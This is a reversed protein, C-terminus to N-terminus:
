KTDKSSLRATLLDFFRPFDIPAGHESIAHFLTQNKAEFGLATM